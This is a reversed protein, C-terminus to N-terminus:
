KNTLSVSLFASPSAPERHPAWHLIQDWSEPVRPDCGSSLHEVVSGGLHGVVVPKQLLTTSGSPQNDFTPNLKENSNYSINEFSFFLFHTHKKITSVHYAKNCRRLLYLM